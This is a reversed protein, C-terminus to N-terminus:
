IEDTVVQDTDVDKVEESHVLQAKQSSARVVDVVTNHARETLRAIRYRGRPRTLLHKIIAIVGINSTDM